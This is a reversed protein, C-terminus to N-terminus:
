WGGYTNRRRTEGNCDAITQSRLVQYIENTSTGPLKAKLFIQVGAGSPSIETYSHLGRIIATAWPDINGTKPDRCDDLDIAAFADRSTLVFGVGRISQRNKSFRQYAKSITDWSSRNSVSAIRGTRPSIPVKTPKGHKTRERWCVWQKHARLKRPITLCFDNALAASCSDESTTATSFRSRVSMPGFEKLQREPGLFFGCGSALNAELRPTVHRTLLPTRSPISRFVKGVDRVFVVM